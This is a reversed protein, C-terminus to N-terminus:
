LVEEPNWRAKLNTGHEKFMRIGRFFAREALWFSKPNRRRVLHKAVIHAQFVPLYYVMYSSPFHKLMYYAHNRITHYVTFNGEATGSLASVKHVLHSDPLYMMKFEAKMARWCFDTDDFYVFYNPDMLGVKEFVEKRILMCCTPSYEIRRAQDFSGDDPKEFGFHRASGRWRSFYGGACWIKQPDDHFLIKPVTMDCQYENLGDSLNSFLEAGFITDNNILLVAECGDRLAARIGINNGEAVGVNEVNRIVRVRPDVYEALLGLTKDSSANDVVYLIFNGYTQKLASEMFDPLVAASNFTVTVVGILSKENM